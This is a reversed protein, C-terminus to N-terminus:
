KYDSNVSSLFDPMKDLRSINTFPVIMARIRVTGDKIPNTMDQIIVSSISVEAITPPM